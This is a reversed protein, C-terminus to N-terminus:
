ASLERKLWQLREGVQLGALPECIAWSDGLQALPGVYAAGALVVAPAPWLGWRCRLAVDIRSGWAEREERDLQRLTLDYPAVVQRPSLLGHQASLIGWRAARGSAVERRAWASALRFLPSTYLEEAPAAHSLKARACSVLVVRERPLVGGVPSGFLELQSM